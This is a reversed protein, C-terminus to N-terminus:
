KSCKFSKLILSSSPPGTCSNIKKVSHRVEIVKFVGKLPITIKEGKHIPSQSVIKLYKEAKKDPLIEADYIYEQSM